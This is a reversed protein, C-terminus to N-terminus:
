TVLIIGAPPVTVMDVLLPSNLVLFSTMVAPIHQFLSHHPNDVTAKGTTHNCMYLVVLIYNHIINYTCM